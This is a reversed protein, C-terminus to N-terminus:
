RRLRRGLGVLMLLAATWAGGGGGTGGSTGGGTTPPSDSGSGGGTDGGTGAGADGGSGSGSDTGTAGANNTPSASTVAQFDAASDNTDDANELLEPDGASIDRVIAEGASLGGSANFPTGTPSPNTADGTYNGWSVCDFGDFCIKGGALPIVSTMALDAAVGFRSEAAATALLIRSQNAGNAVANNFTFTGLITDTADLVQVSHGQVQNQGGAWMQLEIFQADSDSAPGVYVEVVKMLHQAALVPQSLGLTLGGVILGLTIRM